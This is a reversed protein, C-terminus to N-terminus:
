WYSGIPRRVTLCCSAGCPAPVEPSVRNEQSPVCNASSHVLNASPM